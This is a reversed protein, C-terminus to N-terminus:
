SSGSRRRVASASRSKPGGDAVGQNASLCAAWLRAWEGENFEEYDDKVDELTAGSPETLCAHVLAPPFTDNNYIARMGQEAAEDQEEQTPPHEAMLRRYEKRPLADFVFLVTNAEIESELEAVQDARDREAESVGLANAALRDKEMAQLAKDLRDRQEVLDGRICVEVSTRNPRRAARVEAMTWKKRDGGDAAM